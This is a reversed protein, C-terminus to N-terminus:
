EEKVKEVMDDFGFLSLIFDFFRLMIELGIIFALYVIIKEFSTSLEILGSLIREMDFFNPNLFSVALLMFPLMKSLEKALDEKYYSVVRIASIITASVAIITSVNQNETLVILFLTFIAFWFFIIFPLVVIYEVFYLIGAFLKAIIPYSSTNYKGLDLSIINKKAVFRYFKWVFIAYIVVLLVIFFLNLFNQGWAPLVSNISVYLELLTASISEIWGM